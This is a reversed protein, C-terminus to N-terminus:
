PAEEYYEEWGSTSFEESGSVEYDESVGEWGSTSIEEEGSVVYDESIGLFGGWGTYDPTIVIANGVDDVFPGVLKTQLLEGRLPRLNLLGYLAGPQSAHSERSKDFGGLPRPVVQRISPM